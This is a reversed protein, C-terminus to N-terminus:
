VGAAPSRVVVWCQRPLGQPSGATGLGVDAKLSRPLSAYARLRAPLVRWSMVCIKGKSDSTEKNEQM